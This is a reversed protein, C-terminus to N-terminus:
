RRRPRVLGPPSRRIARDRGVGRCPLCAYEKPGKQTRPHWVRVALRSPACAQPTRRATFSYTKDAARPPVFEDSWPGRAVPSEPWENTANQGHRTVADGNDDG